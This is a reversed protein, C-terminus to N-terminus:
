TLAMSPGLNSIDCGREQLLVAAKARILVVREYRDALSEAEALEDYTLGTRQQKTLLAEMRRHDDTPLRTQAAQWSEDDTLFAFQDLEDTLETPM